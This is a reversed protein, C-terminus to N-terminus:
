GSNEESGIYKRSFDLFIEYGRDLDEYAITMDKQLHAKKKNDIKIKGQQDAYLEATSLFRQIRYKQDHLIKFPRKPMLGVEEYLLEEIARYYTRLAELVNRSEQKKGAGPEREEILLYPADKIQRSLNRARYVLSSATRFADFQKDFVTAKRRFAESIEAKQQEQIERLRTELLKEFSKRFVFGLAGVVGATGSISILISHWEM